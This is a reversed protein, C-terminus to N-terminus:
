GAIEMLTMRSAADANNVQVAGDYSGGYAARNVWFTYDTSSTTAPSDLESWFQTQRMNISSGIGIHMADDNTWLTTSNDRTLKVGVHINDNTGCYVTAQILMLVKSSTSTPTISGSVAHQYTTSYFTLPNNDYVHSVQLVMGPAYISGTTLGSLVGATTLQVFTTGGTQFNLSENAQVPNITNVNLTSM